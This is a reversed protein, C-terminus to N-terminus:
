TRVPREHTPSGAATLREAGGAGDARQRYLGADGGRNSEYAIWQGDPSWVPFRNQGELTLRHMASSGDLDYVWVAADNGDDTGIAARSGDRTVRVHVYPGVAVPVRSVVGARDAISLEQENSGTGVPGPVYVLSGTNSVAMQSAGQPGRFVGEVIAVPEGRVQLTDLDFPAAFLIGRHTYVIAPRSFGGM